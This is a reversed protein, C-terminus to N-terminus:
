VKNSNLSEIQQSDVLFNQLGHNLAESYTFLVIGYKKLEADTQTSDM